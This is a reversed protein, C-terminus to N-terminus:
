SIRWGLRRIEHLRQARPYFSRNKEMPWDKIIGSRKSRWGNGDTYKKWHLSQTKTMPGPQRIVKVAKVKRAPQKRKARAALKQYRNEVFHRTWESEARRQLRVPGMGNLGSPREVM